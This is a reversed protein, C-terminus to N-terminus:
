FASRFVHSVEKVAMERSLLLVGTNQVHHALTPGLVILVRRYKSVHISDSQIKKRHFKKQNTMQFLVFFVFLHLRMDRRLYSFKLRNMSFEHFRRIVVNYLCHGNVFYFINSM